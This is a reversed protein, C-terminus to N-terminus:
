VFGSSFLRMEVQPIRVDKADESLGEDDPTFGGIQVECSQSLGTQLAFGHNMEIM